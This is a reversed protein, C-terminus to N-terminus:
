SFRQLPFFNAFIFWEPLFTVGSSHDHLTQLRNSWCFYIIKEFLTKFLFFSIGSYIGNTQSLVRLWTKCIGITNNMKLIMQLSIDKDGTYLPLACEHTFTKFKHLIQFFIWDYSILKRAHFFHRDFMSFVKRSTAFSCVLVLIVTCVSFGRGEKKRWNCVQMFMYMYVCVPLWAPCRDVNLGEGRDHEASASLARLWLWSKVPLPSIMVRDYHFTSACFREAFPKEGRSEGLHVWRDDGVRGQRDLQNWSPSM